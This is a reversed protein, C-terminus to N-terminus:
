NSLWHPLATALSPVYTILLVAALLVLAVPLAARTVEPLPKKFRFSALFLNLGVPPTLYGIELNALFIIGLHIPDIHYAVGLPVLLPAQIVIASYIDMLCGVILLFANLLLLFLFPSRITTTTWEIARQTAEVDVLYNTFGLAVGLILLVGGVLLGCETMVRPVDRSIKLDRHLITEIFFAYLATVASAEVPTAWGSFLAVFAVVPLLLEWKAEWLAARAEQWDYPQRTQETRPSLWFGWLGTAALMVLGPVLGGLFMEKMPVKAIISYLILPLCPPFLLGLSGASTLLGLAHKEKYREGILVPMLLGGIALITVGSAGTFTTFFACVLVTVLVSGGRIRGFLAHFVRVLRQPARSEALFYGALTFLPITPLTPSTVLSYHDVTISGIPQGIGWFLILAIGGLTVYVPVGVLTALLLVFLFPWILREPAIPSRAAFMVGALALATAALRGRWSDGAHWLLYSTILGFGVPLFAEVTWTPIGYALVAGAGKEEVVFQIAAMALSATIAAAVAMAFIRGAARVRGKLLGGLNSLSLLRDERAAIAAGVMGVILTLHQVIPTAGEIGTGLTRRLVIEALPVIVMAATAATVLLNEGQPVFRRWLATKAPTMQLELTAVAADTSM